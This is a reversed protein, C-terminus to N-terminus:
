WARTRRPGRVEELGTAARKCLPIYRQELLPISAPPTACKQPDHCFTLAIKGLRSQGPLVQLQVRLYKSPPRPSRSSLCMHWSMSAQSFLQLATCPATCATIICFRSRCRSSATCLPSTAARWVSSALGSCRTRAVSAALDAVWRSVCNCDNGRRNSKSKVECM